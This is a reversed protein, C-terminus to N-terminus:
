RAVGHYTSLPYVCCACTEHANCVQLTLDYVPMEVVAQPDNIDWVPNLTKKKISTKMMRKDTMTERM